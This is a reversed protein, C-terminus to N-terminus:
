GSPSAESKWGLVEGFFRASADVDPSRLGVWSIRGVPLQPKTNPAATTKTQPM